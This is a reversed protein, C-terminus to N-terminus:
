WSIRGWRWRLEVAGDDLFEVGGDGLFEVGGDDLFKVGGDDLFEVGGDDLFEIGGDDLFEVGGDDLFEVRSDDLVGGGRRSRDAARVAGDYEHIEGREPARWRASATTSKDADVVDVDVVVTDVGDIFSLARRGHISKRKVKAV